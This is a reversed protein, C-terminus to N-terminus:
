NFFNICKCNRKLFKFSFKFKLKFKKVEKQLYGEDNFLIWQVIFQLVFDWIEEVDELELYDVNERDLIECFEDMFMRWVDEECVNDVM